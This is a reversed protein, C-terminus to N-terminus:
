PPNVVPSATCPSYPMVGVSAIFITDSIAETSPFLMVSGDPLAAGASIGGTIAKPFGFLTLDDRDPNFRFCLAQRDSTSTGFGCVSGDAMVFATPWKVTGDGWEQESLTIALISDKVPDLLIFRRDTYPVFLIRGDRLPLAKHWWHRESEPRSLTWPVAIFDIEKTQPDFRLIGDSVSGAGEEWVFRPMCYICGDCGICAARSGKFVTQHNNVVPFTILAQTEGDWIGHANNPIYYDYGNVHFCHIFFPQFWQGSGEITLAPLATGGSMTIRRPQLTTAPPVIYNYGGTVADYGGMGLGFEHDGLNPLNVSIMTMTMDNLNVRLNAQGLGEKTLAIVCNPNDARGTASNFAFARSWGPHVNGYVSSPRTFEAFSVTETRVDTGTYQPVVSFVDLANIPKNNRQLYGQGLITLRSGRASGEDVIAHCEDDCSIGYGESVLGRGSAAFVRAASRPLTWTQAANRSFVDCLKTLQTDEGNLGGTSLIRGWRWPGIETSASVVATQRYRYYFSGPAMRAQQVAAAPTEALDVLVQARDGPLAQEGDRDYLRWLDNVRDHWFFGPASSTFTGAATTFVIETGAKYMTDLEVFASAGPDRYIEVEFHLRAAPDAHGPVDLLIGYEAPAQSDPLYRILHGPADPLMVSTLNDWGADDGGLVFYLAKKDPDFPLQSGDAPLWGYDDSRVTRRLDGIRWQGSSGTPASIWTNDGALLRGSSGPLRPILGDADVTALGVTIKSWVGNTVALLRGHDAMTALPLVESPPATAAWAGSQVQLIKGDDGSTVVPLLPPPQRKVWAGAVVRLIMGNDLLTVAPLLSVAMARWQGNYVTLYKDNDAASVLPLVGAPAPLAAWRGGAVGLYRGDDATTVNPLASGAANIDARTAIDAVPFTRTGDSLYGAYVVHWRYAAKGLSSGWDTKPRLDPFLSM